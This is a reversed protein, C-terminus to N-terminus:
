RYLCIESRVESWKLSAMSWGGSSNILDMGGVIGGKKELVSEEILNRAAYTSCRIDVIMLRRTKWGKKNVM